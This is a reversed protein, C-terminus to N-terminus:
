SECSTSVFTTPLALHVLELFIFPFAHCSPSSMERASGPSPPISSQLMSCSVQQHNSSSACPLHLRDKRINRGDKMFAPPSPTTWVSFLFRRYLNSRRPTPLTTVAYQGAAHRRACLLSTVSAQM